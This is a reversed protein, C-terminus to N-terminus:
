GPGDLTKTKNNTKNKKIITIIITIIITKIITIIMKVIITKIVTIIIIKTTATINHQKNNNHRARPYLKWPRYPQESWTYYRDKDIL